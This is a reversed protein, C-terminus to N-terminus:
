LKKHFDNKMCLYLVYNEFHGIFANRKISCVCATTQVILFSREWVFPQLIHRFTARSCVFAFITLYVRNIPLEYGGAAALLRDLYVIIERSLFLIFVILLRRGTYVHLIHLMFFGTFYSGLLLSAYLARCSSARPSWICSTLCGARVPTKVGCFDFLTFLFSRYKRVTVILDESSKIQNRPKSKKEFIWFTTSWENEQLM